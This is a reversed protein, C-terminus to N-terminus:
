VNLYLVSVLHICFINLTNYFDYFPSFPICFILVPLIHCCFIITKNIKLGQRQYHANASHKQTSSSLFMTKMDFDRDCNTRAPGAIELFGDASTKIALIIKLYLNRM